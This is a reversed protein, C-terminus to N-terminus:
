RSLRLTEGDSLPVFLSRLFILLIRTIKKLNVLSHSIFGSSFNIWFCHSITHVSVLSSYFSLFSWFFCSIKPKLSKIKYYVYNKTDLWIMPNYCISHNLTPRKTQCLSMPNTLNSLFTGLKLCKTTLNEGYTKFLWSNVM